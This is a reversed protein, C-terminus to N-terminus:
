AKELEAFNEVPEPEDAEQLDNENIDTDIEEKKGEIGKFINFFQQMHETPNVKVDRWGREDEGILTAKTIEKIWSFKQFERTAKKFDLTFKSQTYASQILQQYPIAKKECLWAKYWLYMDHRTIISSMDEVLCDEMFLIVPESAMYFDIKKGEISKEGTFKQNAILRQAGLIAKNLLGSFESPTCLKDLINPDRNGLEESFIANFDRVIWRRYFATSVDGGRFRPLENCSFIMKARNHFHIANKFKRQAYVTDDGTLAKFKTTYQIAREDLEAVINAFKGYLDVLSFPQEEFSQINISCCNKEGLFRRILTLFKSKGNEGIGKCAIAVQPFYDPLFCWGVIEYLQEVPEVSNASIEEFFKDIAPCTAKPDYTVPIKALFIENPTHEKLEGTMINLIGNQVCIDYKQELPKKTFEDLTINLWTARKVKGIVEEVCHNTESGGLIGHVMQRITDDGNGEYIGDKYIFIVEEVTKPNYKKMALESLDREILAKQAPTAEKYNTITYNTIPLNPNMINEM